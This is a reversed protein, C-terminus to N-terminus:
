KHHDQTRVQRDLNRHLALRRRQHLATNVIIACHFRSSVALMGADDRNFGFKDVAFASSINVFCTFAFYFGVICGVTLWFKGPFNKIDSFKIRNTPGQQKATYGSKVEVNQDVLITFIAAILSAEMMLTGIWFAFSLSGTTSYTMHAIFFNLVTGSRAICITMAFGLSLEHLKFWDSIYASQTVIIFPTVAFTLLSVQSARASCEVRPSNVSFYGFFFRAAVALWYSNISKMASIAFLAQGLTVFFTFFVLCMRRGVRDIVYGMFFPFILNPIGYM